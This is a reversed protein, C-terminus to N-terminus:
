NCRNFQQDTLIIDTVVM